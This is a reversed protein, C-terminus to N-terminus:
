GVGKGGNAAVEKLEVHNKFVRTRGSPSVYIELDNVRIVRYMGNKRTIECLRSVMVQGWVFGFRRAASTQSALDGTRM